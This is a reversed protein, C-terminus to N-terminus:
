SKGGSLYSAAIRAADYGINKTEGISKIVFHMCRFILICMWMLYSLIAILLTNTLAAPWLKGVVVLIVPSLLMCAIFPVDFWRVFGLMMLFDLQNDPERPLDLNNKM